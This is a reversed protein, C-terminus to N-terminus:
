LQAFSGYAIGLAASSSAGNLAGALTRGSAVPAARTVAILAALQSEIGATNFAPVNVGSSGAAGFGASPTIQYGSANVGSGIGLITSGNGGFGGTGGGTIDGGALGPALPLTGVFKGGAAASSASTAAAAASAKKGSPGYIAREIVSLSDTDHALTSKLSSLTRTEAPTLKQTKGLATLSGVQASLAKDTGSLKNAQARLAALRTEASALTKKDASQEAKLTATTAKDLGKIGLTTSIIGLRSKLSDVENQYGQKPARQQYGSLVSGSVPKPKPAPKGNVQADIAAVKATQSNLSGQLSRLLRQEGASLKGGKGKGLSQIAAIQKRLQPITGATLQNHEKRLFTLNSTATKLEAEDRSQESKLRSADAKDLGKTGLTTKIASLRTRLGSVDKAWGQPPVSQHKLVRRTTSAPLVTEGGQMKVLEPGNEGVTAWGAAANATGSAYGHGHGLVATWDPYTHIAYNLGAYINAMPDYINGSLGPNRWREFTPQIVQLLGKSPTGAKANSDVLNIAAQNGGSETAMQSLVIGLDSSPLGLMALVKLVDPTWQAVGSTVRGAIGAANAAAQAASKASRVAASLTAELSSVAASKTAGYERVDFQGLGSASGKYSAGVLGGAAFGPLRGRLHDVAGASVMKTPVVVEGPMAMIPVSDRHPVGGTIMGGAAKNSLPLASSTGPKTTLSSTTQIQKTQATEKVSFTGVANLVIQMATKLPIKETQAIMKAIDSNSQRAAKGGAVIAKNLLLQANRAQASKPGFEVQANAYNQLATGVGNYKLTATDLDKNLTTALYNAQQELSGTLSQEWRNLDKVADRAANSHGAYDSLKGTQTSIYGTVQKVSAGNNLMAEAASQIAGAQSYFSQQLTVSAANTGTMSAGATKANKAITDLGQTVSLYAQQETVFGGVLKTYADDLATVRQAVPITANGFATADQGLATFTPAAIENASAFAQIQTVAAAAKPGGAALANGLDTAGKATKGTAAVLAIAQTRTLGLTAQLTGYGFQLNAASAQAQQQAASVKNLNAGVDTLGVRVAQYSTTDALSQQYAVQVGQTGSLQESLKRYGAINSGTADDTKKLSAILDEQEGSTKVLLYGLAGVAAVAGAVWVFPNVADLVGAAVAAATESATLGDMAVSAAAASVAEADLGASTAASVAAEGKAALAAATYGKVAGTIKTFTDVVSKGTGVIATYPKYLALAAVGADLLWPTTRSLSDAVSLLGSAFHLTTVALPNFDQLLGELLHAAPPILGAVAQMDQPIEQGLFHAFQRADPDTAVSGITKVLYSVADGGERALPVLHPLITDATHLADNMIGIVQPQVATSLKGYEGELQKLGGLVDKQGQSLKSYEAQAGKAGSALDQQAKVVKTVSPVALAAFAAVGAGAVVFAPAVATAGAILSVLASGSEKTGTATVKVDARTRGLLRARASTDDLERNADGNNVTVAIRPDSKGLKDTRAQTSDLSKNATATNIRVTSTIDKGLKDARAQTDDLDKNAAKNDAVLKVTVPKGSFKEADAKAQDLGRSFDSRDLILRSEVSGADFTSM